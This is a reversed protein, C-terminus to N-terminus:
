CSKLMQGIKFFEELYGFILANEIDIPISLRVTKISYPNCPNNSIKKGFTPLFISM